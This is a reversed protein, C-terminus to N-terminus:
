QHRERAIYEEAASIEAALISDQPDTNRLGPPYTGPPVLELQPDDDVNVVTMAGISAWNDDASQWIPHYEDTTYFAVDGLDSYAVIEPKGNADIDAVFVETVSSKLAESVWVERFRGSEFRLVHVQGFRDGIVVVAPIETRLVLAPELVVREVM